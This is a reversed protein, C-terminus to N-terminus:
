STVGELIRRMIAEVQARIEANQIIMSRNGLRPRINILSEFEVEQIEPIWNAGWLDDQESDQDLLVEECEYHMESGGALLGRRIDVVVKVMGGYQQLMERMQESTARESLLHIV